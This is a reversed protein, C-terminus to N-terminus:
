LPFIVEPLTQLELQDIVKSGVISAPMQGSHSCVDGLSNFHLSLVYNEALFFAAHDTDLRLRVLRLCKCIPCFGDVQGRPM